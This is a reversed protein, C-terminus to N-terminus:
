RDSRRYFVTVHTRGARLIDPVGVGNHGKIPQNIMTRTDMNFLVISSDDSGAALIKNDLSVSITKIYGTQGTSWAEGSSTGTSADYIRVSRNGMM